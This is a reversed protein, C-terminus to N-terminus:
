QIVATEQLEELTHMNKCWQNSSSCEITATQGLQVTRVKPQTLTIGSSEQFFVAIAWIFIMNNMTTKDQTILFIRNQETRSETM